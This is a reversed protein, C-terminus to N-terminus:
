IGCEGPVPIGLGSCCSSIGRFRFTTNDCDIIELHEQLNLSDQVAEWTMVCKDRVFACEEPCVSLPLHM